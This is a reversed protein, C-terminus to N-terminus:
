QYEKNASAKIMQCNMCLTQLGAPFGRKRLWRCMVYGGKFGIERRHKNGDGGIHDITLARVDANFGCRVCALKGNGYHILVERRVLQNRLIMLERNEQHYRRHYELKQEHHAERYRRSYACIKDRNRLYYNHERIKIEARHEKRYRRCSEAKQAKHEHYYAKAYVREKEKDKWAM